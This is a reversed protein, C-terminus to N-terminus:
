TTKTIFTKKLETRLKDTSLNERRTWDFKINRFFDLRNPLSQRGIKLRSRDCFTARGPCRDNIYARHRLKEAM